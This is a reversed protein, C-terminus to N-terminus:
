RHIHNGSTTIHFVRTHIHSSWQHPHSACHHPHLSWQLQYLGGGSLHTQVERIHNHVESDQAAQDSFCTAFNGVASGALSSPCVKCLIDIYSGVLLLWARLGGLAVTCCVTTGNIGACQM